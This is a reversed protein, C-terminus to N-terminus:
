YLIIKRHLIQDNYKLHILYVAQTLVAPLQLSVDGRGTSQEMVKKGSLAYLTVRGADPIDIFHLIYHGSRKLIKLDPNGAPIKNVSIDSTHIYPISVRLSDLPLDQNRFTAIFNDEEQHQLVGDGPTTIPNLARKFTCSHYSGNNLLPFVEEDKQTGAANTLVIYVSDYAYLVDQKVSTFRIEVSEMNGDIESIPSGSYYFEIKRSWFSLVVMNSDLTTDLIEAFYEIVHTTDYEAVTLTDGNTTISDKTVHYVIEYNFKTSDGALPFFELFGFGNGDWGTVPSIGNITIDTPLAQYTMKGVGGINSDVKDVYVYESMAVVADQLPLITDNLNEPRGRYSYNCVEQASLISIYFCVMFLYIFTSIIGSEPKPSTNNEFM